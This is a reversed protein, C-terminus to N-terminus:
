GVEITNLEDEIDIGEPQFGVEKLKALMYARSYAGNLYGQIIAQIDQPTAAAKLADDSIQIGATFEEPKFNPDIFRMMLRLLEQVTSEKQNAVLQLNIKSRSDNQNAETATLSSREGIFARSLEQM